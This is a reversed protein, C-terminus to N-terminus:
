LSIWLWLTLALSVVVVSWASAVVQRMESGIDDLLSQWRRRGDSM